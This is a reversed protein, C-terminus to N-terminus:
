NTLHLQSTQGEGDAWSPNQGNGSCDAESTKSRYQMASHPKPKTGFLPRLIEWEEDVRDQLESAVAMCEPDNPLTECCDNIHAQVEMIWLLKQVALEPTLKIM